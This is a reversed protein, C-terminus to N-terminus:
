KMTTFSMVDESFEAKKSCKKKLGRTQILAKKIDKSIIYYGTKDDYKIAPLTRIKKNSAIVQLSEVGFPPEVSFEGLSIWRSADDANVFKVFRSNGNGEQLELLYSLKQDKTQTYGVIYFYGKKNLKVFLEVTDGERFLLQQDGRNSNLQVKLKDSLIIGNNLLMDFDICKPKIKLYKYAIPNITITKSKKVENTRTDLLEYNLVLGNKTVVYEGMLIYSADKPTKVSKLKSKLKELFVSSFESAITTNILLPPYIFIKNEDFTKAMIKCAM